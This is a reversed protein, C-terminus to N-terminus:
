KLVTETVKVTETRCLRNSVDYQQKCSVGQKSREPVQARVTQRASVGEIQHNILGVQSSILFSM